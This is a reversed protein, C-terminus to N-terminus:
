AKYAFPHNYVDLANQGEKVVVEFQEGTKADNVLVTVENNGENWLMWIDIGDSIRHDLEKFKVESEANETRELLANPSHENM